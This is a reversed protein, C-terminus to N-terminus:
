ESQRAAPWLTSGMPRLNYRRRDAALGALYYTSGADHSEVSLSSDDSAASLMLRARRTLLGGLLWVCLGGLGPEPVVAAGSVITLQGSGMSGDITGFTFWAFDAATLGTEFRAIPLTTPLPSNDLSFWKAHGAFFDQMWLTQSADVDSGTGNLLFELPEAGYVSFCFIDLDQPDLSMLGTTADYTLTALGDLPSPPPTNNIPPGNGTFKYDNWWNFDRVDVFGDTSFDGRCWGVDAGFTFKNANWIMLDSADTYGDLNGDGPLYPLGSMLNQAGGVQLWDDLDARNILGDGNMDYLLDDGGAAIQQSLPDIDDCNWLGDQNFDGLQARAAASLLLLLWCAGVHPCCISKM